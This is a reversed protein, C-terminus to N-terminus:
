SDEYSEEINMRKFKAKLWYLRELEVESLKEEEQSM